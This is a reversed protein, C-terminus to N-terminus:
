KNNTSGFRGDGRESSRTYLSELDNVVEIDAYLVPILVLQIIKMGATLTVYRNLTNMLHIIIQGQYDQDVVCGGVIIGKDAVSTRNFATFMYGDPVECYVGSEIKIIEDPQLVTDAFDNPIYFDIGASKATGRTPTKVNEKVFFRM